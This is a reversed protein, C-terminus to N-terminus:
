VSTVGNWGATRLLDDSGAPDDFHLNVDDVSQLWWPRCDCGYALEHGSADTYAGGGGGGGGMSSLLANQGPTAAAAAAAAAGSSGNRAAGAGAAPLTAATASAAPAAAAPLPAGGSGFIATADAAGAPAAAGPRAAAGSCLEVAWKETLAQARAVVDRGDTRTM